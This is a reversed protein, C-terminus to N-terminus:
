FGLFREMADLLTEEHETEPITQAIVNRVEEFRDKPVSINLVPKIRSKFKLIVTVIESSEDELSSFSEIDSLPYFKQDNITLGRNAIKFKAMRPERDGWTIILVEAILIFFAFLFNKQWVAFGIVLVAIIISLWYWSINKHRYEFEPAQWEIGFNDM